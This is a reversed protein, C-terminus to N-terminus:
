TNAVRSVINYNYVYIYIYIDIYIYIYIYHNIQQQRAPQRLLMPYTFLPTNATTKFCYQIYLSYNATTKFCFHIHLLNNATTKYSHQIYPFLATQTAEVTMEQVLRSTLFSYWLATRRRNCQCFVFNLPLWSWLMITLLCSHTRHATHPTHTDSHSNTHIIKLYM